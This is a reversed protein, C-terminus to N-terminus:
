EKNIITGGSSKKIKICKKKATDWVWGPTKNCDAEKKAADFTTSDGLKAIKQAEKAKELEKKKTALDKKWNEKNAEAKELAEAAADYAAQEEKKYKDKKTSVANLDKLAEHLRKKAAAIGENAKGKPGVTAELKEIATNIQKVEKGEAKFTRTDHDSTKAKKKRAEQETDGPTDIIKQLRDNVTEEPQGSSGKNKQNTKDWSSYEIIASIKTEYGSLTFDHTVKKIAYYGNAKFQRSDKEIFPKIDIYILQGINFLPFGLTTIEAQFVIPIWGGESALDPNNDQGSTSRTPDFYIATKTTSDAIDTLKVSKVVGKRQGGLYFHYIDNRMNSRYNGFKIKGNKLDQKVNKSGFIFYIITGPAYGLTFDIKPSIFGSMKSEKKCVEFFGTLFKKLITKLFMDYSFFEKEKGIIENAFFNNLKKISIPLYYLKFDIIPRGTYPTDYSVFGFDTYITSGFTNKIEEHVKRSNQTSVPLEMVANMLDGLFIYPITQYADANLKDLDLIPDTLFGPINEVQKRLANKNPNTLEIKILEISRRPVYAYRVKKSTGIRAILQRLAIYKALHAAKLFEAKANSLSGDMAKNESEILKDQAINAAVLKDKQKELQVSDARVTGSGSPAPVSSLAPSRKRLAAQEVASLESRTGSNTRWLEIVATIASDHTYTWKGGGKTKMFHIYDILATNIVKNQNADNINAKAKKIRDAATDEKASNQENIVSFSNKALALINSSPGNLVDVIHGRYEASVIVSGDEKLDFNYKVLHTKLTLTYKGLKLAKNNTNNTSWGLNFEIYRYLKKKGKGVSTAINLLSAYPQQTLTRLDQFMYTANVRVVKVTASDIGEYTVNISQIGGATRQGTSQLINKGAIFFDTNNTSPLIDRRQNKDQQGNKNYYTAAVTAFNVMQAVQNPQIEFFNKIKSKITVKNIYELNSKFGKTSGPGTGLQRSLSTESPKVGKKKYIWAAKELLLCQENIMPPLNMKGAM